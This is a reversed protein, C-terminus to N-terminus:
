GFWTQQAKFELFKFCKTPPILVKFKNKFRAAESGTPNIRNFLVGLFHYIICWKVVAKFISANCLHLALVM